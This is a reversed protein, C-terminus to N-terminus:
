APGQRVEDSPDDPQLRATNQQDYTEKTPISEITERYAVLRQIEQDLKWLINHKDKTLLWRQTGVLKGKTDWRYEIGYHQPMQCFECLGHGVCEANSNHACPMLPQM